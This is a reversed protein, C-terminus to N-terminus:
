LLTELRHVVIRKGFTDWRNRVIKDIYKPEILLTLLLVNPPTPASRLFPVKKAHASESPAGTRESVSNEM